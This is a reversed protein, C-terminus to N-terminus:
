DGDSDEEEGGQMSELWDLMQTLGAGQPPAGEEGEVAGAAMRLLDDPFRHVALPAFGIAAAGEEVTRIPPLEDSPPPASGTSPPASRKELVALAPGGLLAGADGAEVHECTVGTCGLEEWAFLLPGTDYGCPAFDLLWVRGRRDIYADFAFHALPPRAALERAHFALLAARAEELTRGEQLWDFRQATHRQSIGVVRGARVFVRFEGSPHVAYWARLALHPPPGCGGEAAAVRAARECDYRALDSAKLLLFVEGV